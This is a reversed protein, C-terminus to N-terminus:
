MQLLLPAAQQRSAPMLERGPCLLAGRVIEIGGRQTLYIPHAPGRISCGPKSKTPSAVLAPFSGGLTQAEHGWTRTFLANPIRVSRSGSAWCLDETRHHAGGGQDGALPRTSAGGRPEPCQTDGHKPCQDLITPPSHKAVRPTQPIHGLM